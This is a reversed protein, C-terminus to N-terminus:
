VNGRSKKLRTSVAISDVIRIKSPVKSRGLSVKCIGRIRNRLDSLDEPHEIVLDVSIVQGLLSNPEGYVRADVINEISELFNEIEIPYVKEGGVNIVDSVRGLVQIYDGDLIVEDQTNFYGESDFEAEANLYGRMRFNSRIWLTGLKVKWDFGDGGIKMWLSGDPKSKSSLVGVESLGYTQQLQVNPFYKRLQELTSKTMPETGFTIKNLSSLDFRSVAGSLIFMRIFSPTVPLVKVKHRQIAECVTDVSRDELVIAEGGCSTVSFVTNLGGFHDMMLFLVANIPKRIPKFKELLTHSDYLIAKPIGTSGSSFLILGGIKEKRMTQILQYTESVRNEIEAVTETDVMFTFDAKSIEVAVQTSIPSSETMPVAIAGIRMVALIACFMGSNSKGRIVVVDGIGVNSRNLLSVFRETQNVLQIYSSSGTKERMAVLHGFDVLRSFYWEM